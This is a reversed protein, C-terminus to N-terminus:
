LRPSQAKIVEATDQLEKGLLVIIDDLTVIGVLEGDEDVVPLRRINLDSLQGLADYVSMTDSGAVIQDSMVDWATMESFERGSELSLAIRRDTVLGQPEDDEVVVVSGVDGDEMKSAVTSLPTEPEATVVDDQLIEDLTVSQLHSPSGGM